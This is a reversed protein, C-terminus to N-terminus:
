RRAQAAVLFGTAVLGAAAVLAQTAPAWNRQFIDLSAGPIRGEGQLSPVDEATDHPELDNLVRAVGPVAGAAALVADVEASLVPGRLTVVGESAEVGIARPHSCVRGLRARVRDVLRKDDVAGASFRGRTAAAVGRTRNALDRATADVADRTKRSARVLQDRVLARRRRGRSPDLIYATAM